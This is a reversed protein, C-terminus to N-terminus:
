KVVTKKGNVIYLGKTLKGNAIPRGQLDYIVNNMMEKNNLTASIGQAEDAFVVSLRANNASADVTTSLYAKGAPMTAGGEKAMNFVIGGNGDSQLIYNFKTGDTKAVTTASTVGVLENESITNTTTTVPISYTDATECYLIVGTNAPVIGDSIETLKVSSGNAQAKYVKVDTPDFNLAKTSCYTAYKAEGITVNEIDYKITISNIFTSESGTFTVTNANGEWTTNSSSYSDTGITLKGKNFDFAISKFNYGEPATLTMTNGKYIRVYRTGGSVTAGDMRPPTEKETKKLDIKVGKITYSLAEGSEYNGTIEQDNNNFNIVTKDPDVVTLTYSVTSAEYEDNGLFKAFIKTTGEAMITVDGTESDVNACNALNTKSYTVPLNNPNILVPSTFARGVKAEYNDEPWAIGADKKNVTLTYSVEAPKYNDNGAYNAKITTSGAAVISIEGTSANITAVDTDTSTWTIPSVKNGNTLTQTAYDAGLTTVQTAEAFSIGAEDRNDNVTLTYTDNSATYKGEVAAATAKVTVSGEQTVTVEGTSANITAGATNDTIEYTISAGTESSYGDATTPIQSYTTTAPFSISPEKTAFTLNSSPYSPATAKYFKAESFQVYKNSSGSVTVNFVFKYYANNAWETAPSTPTFTITSSAAFTKSVEDIQNNFSADSAVILKLSNVTISSAEGVTLEVKTIASGMATKSYVTRDVDSISKGGLRWPQFTSNGTINWTIGGIEVDCSSAYANNSGAAPELTYYLEDDAWASSGVVLACLLLMTKLLYLKKM